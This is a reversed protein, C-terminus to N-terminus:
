LDFIDKTKNSELKKKGVYFLKEVAVDGKTRDSKQLVKVEKSWVCEFDNPMYYESIFVYNNM